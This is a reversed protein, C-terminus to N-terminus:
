AKKGYSVGADSGAFGLGPLANLASDSRNKAM